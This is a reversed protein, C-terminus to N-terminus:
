GGVLVRRSEGDGFEGARVKITREQGQGRLGRDGRKGAMSWFRCIMGGFFDGLALSEGKCFTCGDELVDEQNGRVPSM